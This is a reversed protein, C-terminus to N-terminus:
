NQDCKQKEQKLRSVENEWYSVTNKFEGQRKAILSDRREFGYKLDFWSWIELLPQNHWWMHCKTCLCIGNELDTSLLTSKSREILHHSQLTTRSGCKECQNGSRIKIIESWLDLAQKQLKQKNTKM